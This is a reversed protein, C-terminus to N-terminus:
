TRGIGPGSRESERIGAFMQRPLTVQDAGIMPSILVAM